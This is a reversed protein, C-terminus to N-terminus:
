PLRVCHSMYHHVTPKYNTQFTLGAGHEILMRAVDVQGEQLPTSGYNNQATLDASGEILKRSAKVHGNRSALHSRTVKDTSDRSCM